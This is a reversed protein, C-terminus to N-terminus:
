SSEKGGERWLNFEDAMEKLTQEDNRYYARWFNQSRLAIVDPDEDNAKKSDVWEDNDMLTQKIAGLFHQCQPLFLIRACSQMSKSAEILSGTFTELDRFFNKMAIELYRRAILADITAKCLYVNISLDAAGGRRDDFDIQASAMVDQRVLLQCTDRLSGYISVLKESMGIDLGKRYDPGYQEIVSLVKSGFEEIQMLLRLLRQCSFYLM